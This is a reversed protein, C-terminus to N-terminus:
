LRSFRAMRRQYMQEFLHRAAPSAVSHETSWRYWAEEADLYEARSALHDAFRAAQQQIDLNTMAVEM